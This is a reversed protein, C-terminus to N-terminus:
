AKFETSSKAIITDYASEGGRGYSTYVDQQERVDIDPLEKIGDYLTAIIKQIDALTEQTRQHQSPRLVTVQCDILMKNIYLYLPLMDQAIDYSLDLGSIITQLINQCHVVRDHPTKDDDLLGGALAQQLLDLHHMLLEYTTQLLQLPTASIIDSHTVNM